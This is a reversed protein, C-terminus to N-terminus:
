MFRIYYEFHNYEPTTSCFIQNIQTIQCQITDIRSILYKHYRPNYHELNKSTTLDEQTSIIILIDRLNFLQNNQDLDVFSIYDNIKTQNLSINSNINNLNNKHSLLNQYNLDHLILFHYNINNINNVNNVNNM